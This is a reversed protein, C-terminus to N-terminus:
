MAVLRWFDFVLYALLCLTLLFCLMASLWSTRKSDMKKMLGEVLQTMKEIHEYDVSKLREPDTQIAKAVKKLDANPELRYHSILYQVMVGAAPGGLYNCVMQAGAKTALKMLDRMEM